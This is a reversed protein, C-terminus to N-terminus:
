GLAPALGALASEVVELHGVPEGHGLVPQDHVGGLTEAPVGLRELLWVALTMLGRTSGDDSKIAIGTGDALGIALCGEAGKKLISGPVAHMLAADPTDTGSVYEPHARYADALQKAPGNTSASVRGFGRALGVIPVAFLPAGCGDVTDGDVRGCYETLVARVAQQLPHSPDRYTATDWGVRVCTRLMSAHKGSCNQTISEPGHGARIWATRAAESLPLGPTNQLDAVTLGAGALITRVADLHLQEGSHSSGALAVLEGTTDLGSELMAIAQFPKLSSRAYLSSEPDGVSFRVSADPNTVVLRYRHVCEVLDGRVVEILVPDADLVGVGRVSSHAPTSEPVRSLM